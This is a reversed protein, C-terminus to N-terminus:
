SNFNSVTLSPVLSLIDNLIWVILFIRKGKIFSVQIIEEWFARGQDMQCSIKEGNCVALQQILPSKSQIRGHEISCCIRRLATFM